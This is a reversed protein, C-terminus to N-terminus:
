EFYFYFWKGLIQNDVTEQNIKEVTLYNEKVKEALKRCANVLVCKGSQTYSQFNIKLKKDNKSKNRWALGNCNNNFDRKVESDKFRCWIREKVEYSFDEFKFFTLMEIQNRGIDYYLLLEVLKNCIDFVKCSDDDNINLVVCVNKPLHLTDHTLRSGFRLLLHEYIYYVSTQILVKVFNVVRIIAYVLHYLFLYFQNRALDVKEDGISKRLSTAFLPVIPTSEIGVLRPSGGRSFQMTLALWLVSELNINFILNIINLFAFEIALTYM